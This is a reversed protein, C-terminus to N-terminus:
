RTGSAPKGSPLAVKITLPKGQRIVAVEVAMDPKLMALLRRFALVDSPVAKGDVQVIVDHLQFGAKAAASDKDVRDIVMGQKSPLGLQTALSQNPITAHFGLGEPLPIVPPPPTSALTIGREVDSRLRQIKKQDAEAKSLAEKAKAIAVKDTGKTAKAVGEKAEKVAEATRKAEDDIEKLMAQRIKLVEKEYDKMKQDFDKKPPDTAKDQGFARFGPSLLVALFLVVAVLAFTTSRM